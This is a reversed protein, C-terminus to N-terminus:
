GSSISPTRSTFCRVTSSARGAVQAANLVISDAGEVGQWMWRCEPLVMASGAMAADVHLFMGHERATRAIAELPDLATTATTGTTAVIACPKRGAAVDQRVVDALLDPRM